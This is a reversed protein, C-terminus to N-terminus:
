EDVVDAQVLGDVSLILPLKNGRWYLEDGTKNRDIRAFEGPGHVDVWSKNEDKERFSGVGWGSALNAARLTVKNTPALKQVTGSSDRYIGSYATVTVDLGVDQVKGVRTVEGNETMEPRIFGNDIRAIEAAQTFKAKVKPHALFANIAKLGGVLEVGPMGYNEMLLQSWDRLDGLPDANVEDTWQQNGALTVQHDSPVPLTITYDVGDGVIPLTGNFFQQAVCWVWRRHAREKVRALYEGLMRQAWSEADPIESFGTLGPAVDDFDDPNVEAGDKLTPIDIDDLVRKLKGMLPAPAKPHTFESMGMDNLIYDFVLKTQGKRALWQKERILTKLLYDYKPPVKTLVHTLAQWTTYAAITDLSM